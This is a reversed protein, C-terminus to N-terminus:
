FQIHGRRAETSVAREHRSSMVQERTLGILQDLTIGFGTNNYSFGTERERRYRMTLQLKAESTKFEIMWQSVSSEQPSSYTVETAPYCAWLLLMVAPMLSFSVARVPSFKM